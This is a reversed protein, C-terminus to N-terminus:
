RQAESVMRLVDSLSLGEEIITDDALQPNAYTMLCTPCQLAGDSTREVPTGCEECQGWEDGQRIGMRPSYLLPASDGRGFIDEEM